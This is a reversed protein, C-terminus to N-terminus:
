DESAGWPFLERLDRVFRELHDRPVEEGTERLHERLRIMGLADPSDFLEAAVARASPMPAEDRYRDRLACAESWENETVMAMITYLDFAHHRGFGKREDHLQDRLALLKLLLYSFPHPVFVTTTRDEWRVEVPLLHEEVTLAEPTSHAHLGRVARNRVRRVDARLALKEGPLRPVDALLDIKLPRTLRAHEVHRVFQYFKASEVPRYGLAALAERFRTVKQADVLLEATLFLDIDETSRAVPYPRLTRTGLARLLRQRLV